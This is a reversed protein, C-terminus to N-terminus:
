ASGLVRVVTASLEREAEETSLRGADVEGAAAHSLQIIVTVLWDAPPRRDFEGARQGREVIPRLRKAVPEHQSAFRRLLMPYRSSTRRASALVRLVADVAEETLRDLVAALLRERSPFHAYVTQRTVGAAAAVAEVSADPDAELVRLAADLIAARLKVM